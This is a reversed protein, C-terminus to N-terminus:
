ADKYAVCQIYSSFEFMPFREGWIALEHAGGVKAKEYATSAELLMGEEKTQYARKETLFLKDLMDNIYKEVDVGEHNARVSAEVLLAHQILVPIATTKNM